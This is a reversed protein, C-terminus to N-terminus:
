ASARVAESKSIDFFDNPQVAGSTEAHIREMTDRDPVRKGAKFRYLTVRSVGIRTAFENDPTKSATLWEALTM